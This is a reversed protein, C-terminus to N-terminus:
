NKLTKIINAYDEKKGRLVLQSFDKDLNLFSKIESTTSGSGHSLTMGIEATKLLHKRKKGKMKSKQLFVKFVKAKGLFASMQMPTEQSMNQVKYMKKHPVYLLLKELILYSEDECFLTLFHFFVNGYMDLPTCLKAQFDEIKCRHSFLALIFDFINKQDENGKCLNNKCAMILGYLIIFDPATYEVHSYIWLDRSTRTLHKILTIMTSPSYYSNETKSSDKKGLPMQNVNADAEGEIVEKMVKKKSKELIENQKKVEFSFHKELNHFLIMIFNEDLIKVFHHYIYDGIKEDLDPKEILVSTFRECLINYLEKEELKLVLEGVSHEYKVGRILEIIDEIEGEQILPQIFHQSSLFVAKSVIPHIFKYTHDDSNVLYKWVLSDAHDVIDELPSETSTHYIITMLEQFKKVNTNGTSLDICHRKDTAIYALVCYKNMLDTKKSEVSTKYLDAIERRLFKPPNIFYKEEKQLYHKKKSCFKKVVLPFGLFPEIKIIKNVLDVDLEASMSKSIKELIERKEELTMINAKKDLDVMAKDSYIKKKQLAEKVTPLNEHSCIFIGKAKSTGSIDPLLGLRQQLSNDSDEHRCTDIVKAKRKVSVELRRDLSKPSYDLEDLFFIIKTSKLDAIERENMNKPVEFPLYDKEEFVSELQLRMKSKGTGKRGVIVVFGNNKICEVAKDVTSTKVYTKDKRHQLVEKFTREQPIVKLKWGCSVIKRKATVVFCVYLGNDSVATKFTLPPKNCTGGEYKHGHLDSKVTGGNTDGHDGYLNSKVAGSSTDCFLYSKVAEGKTDDHLDSNVAGGRTDCFIDSKVAEANTDFHSDSKVAESKTDDHVDRDSKVAEGKTDDHLDSTVAGGSTDCFLDSKVAEGNKDDHLDRKVAGDNTNGHLDRKVAGDKTDGLLYPKAAEDNIDENKDLDVARLIDETRYYWVVNYPNDNLSPKMTVKDGKLKKEIKHEEPVPLKYVIVNIKNQEEMRCANFHHLAQVWTM